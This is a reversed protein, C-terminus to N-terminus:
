TNMLNMVDTSFYFLASLLLCLLTWGAGLNLRKWSLNGGDKDKKTNNRSDEVDVYMNEFTSELEKIEKEITNQMHKDVLEWDKICSLVEVM